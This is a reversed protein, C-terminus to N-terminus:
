YLLYTRVMKLHFTMYLNFSKYYFYIIEKPKPGSSPKMVSKMAMSITDTTIEPIIIDNHYKHLVWLRLLMYSKSTIKNARSIADQLIMM